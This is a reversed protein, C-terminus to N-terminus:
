RRAAGLLSTLQVHANLAPHHEVERAEGRRGDRRGVRNRGGLKATGPRFLDTSPQEGDTGAMAM